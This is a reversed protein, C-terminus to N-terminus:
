RNEAQYGPYMSPANTRIDAPNKSHHLDDGAPFSAELPAIIVDPENAYELDCQSEPELGALQQIVALLDPEPPLESLEANIAGPTPLTADQECGCPAGGCVECTHADSVISIEQATPDVQPENASDVIDLIGRIIDTIKM